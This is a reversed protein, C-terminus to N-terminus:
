LTPAVEEMEYVELVDNPRIDQFDSFGVGCEMGHNVFKVDEKFRKLSNLVGDHVVMDDRILRCKANRTFQGSQIYAGAISLGKGLRFVERIEGRGLINEEFQKDLMGTMAKRIDEIAEYIIQYTSIQVHERKALDRVAPQPRVNFGMIIAKSASALMVDSETIGGVGSHLISVRVKDSEIKMLNSSLADVSGQVDGKIILQLDKVQGEEIQTYLDELSVSQSGRLDRERQLQRLRTSIQKAQSDDLVAIFPDGASPVDDMGSIEVPMSPGAEEMEEGKDNVLTRVRGSHIGTVFPDGIRLVGQQILVTAVSGRGQELRSEIITGRARCEPDAKLELLEAQLLIAEVLDEIGIGGKASIPVFVVDGGWDEPILGHESVQQKVKDVNAGELDMKNVAVITPVDAAKAHNLAEVTQPMVGETASVVLVVIDTVMAGRARMATFAQHGPTDLFVCPGKPTKVYYAGIHQTIGGAEQSVVDTSRVADLLKTKGHDVHGMITVVPPRETFRAEDIDDDKIQALADSDMLDVHEVEFGYDDAIIQITDMDIQQNVTAMVGAQMLKGILEAPPINLGNAIDAVTTADHVKLLTSERQIREEEQAIMTERRERKERKWARKGKSKGGGPGRRLAAPTQRQAGSPKSDDKKEEQARKQKQKLKQIERRIISDADERDEGSAAEVQPKATTDADDESIEPAEIIIEPSGSPDLKPALELTKLKEKKKAKAKQAAKKKEKRDKERQAQQEKAVDPHLEANPPPAIPQVGRLEPQVLSPGSKRKIVTPEPEVHEITPPPTVKRVPAAKKAEVPKPQEELEPEPQPEPEPMTVKPAEPTTVEPAPIPEVRRPQGPAVTSSEEAKRGSSTQPGAESASEDGGADKYGKPRRIRAFKKTAKTEEKEPSSLKGFHTLLMELTGEDLSSSHSKNSMGITELYSLIDKNDIGYKRAVQNIRM